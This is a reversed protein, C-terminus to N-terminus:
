CRLFPLLYEEEVTASISKLVFFHRIDLMARFMALTTRQGVKALLIFGPLTKLEALMDNHTTSMQCITVADAV